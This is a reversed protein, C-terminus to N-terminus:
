TNLRGEDVARRAEITDLQKGCEPCTVPRALGTTDYGCFYCIGNIDAARPTLELMADWISEIASRAIHEDGKTLLIQYSDREKPPSESLTASIGRLELGYIIQAAVSSNPATTLVIRPSNTNPSSMPHPYPISNPTDPDKECM